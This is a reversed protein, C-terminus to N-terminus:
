LCNWLYLDGQGSKAVAALRVLATLLDRLDGDNAYPAEADSAWASITADFKSSDFVALADTFTPPFTFTIVDFGESMAAPEFSPCQEGAIIRFLPKLGTDMVRYFIARRDDSGGELGDNRAAEEPSGVFFYSAISM